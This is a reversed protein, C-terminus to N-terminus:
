QRATTLRAVGILGNAPGGLAPLIATPKPEKKLDVMETAVPM